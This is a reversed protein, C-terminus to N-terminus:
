ARALANNKLISRDLEGHALREFGWRTAVHVM